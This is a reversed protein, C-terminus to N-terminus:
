AGRIAAEAELAMVAAHLSTCVRASTLDVRLIKAIVDLREYFAARSMAATRAAVSKNGRCELYTSLLRLMDTGHQADYHLLPDLTRAVFAQLRPDGTLTVLLGRVGLEPLEHFLRDGHPEARYAREVQVAESISRRVDALRTVTSGVGIRAGACRARVARALRTLVDARQGHDELGVLVCVVDDGRPTLLTPLGTARTAEAVLRGFDRGAPGGDPTRVVVGVLLKRRLGVGLADTRALVDDESGYRREIVDSLLSRQALAGPDEDDRTLMRHLTLAVSAREVIVLHEATPRGRPLLILRGVPEGDVEVNTVVWEEPGCVAARGTSVAERSRAAWRNLLQDVPMGSADCALVRRILDEFVVAADAMRAAASVIDAVTAGTVTLSTFVEHAKDSLRLTAMQHELIRAHVAETLRVFEVPRHLVVLPVAHRECAAVLAEPATAFRTGYELLLGSAGADELRSVYTEWADASDTLAFGTTLVLEGGRLLEDIEALEAVHLWRVRRALHADGAIVQPRGLQTAPMAIVDAVTPLTADAPGPLASTPRM